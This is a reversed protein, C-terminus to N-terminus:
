VTLACLRWTASRWHREASLPPPCNPGHPNPWWWWFRHGRWGSRRPRKPVSSPHGASGSPPCADGTVTNCRVFVLSGSYVMRHPTGENKVDVQSAEYLVTGFASRVPRAVWSALFMQRRLPCGVSLSANKRVSLFFLANFSQM